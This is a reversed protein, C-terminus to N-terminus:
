VQQDFILITKLSICLSMKHKMAFMNEQVNNVQINDNEAWFDGAFFERLDVLIRGYCFHLLSHNM